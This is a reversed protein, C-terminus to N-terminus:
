PTNVYKLYSNEIFCKAMQTLYENYKLISNM